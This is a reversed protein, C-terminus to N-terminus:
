DVVKVTICFENGPQPVRYTLADVLGVGGVKENNNRMDVLCGVVYKIQANIFEIDGIGANVEELTKINKYRGMEIKFRM